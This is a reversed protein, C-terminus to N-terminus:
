PERAGRRTSGHTERNGRPRKSGLTRARALVAGDRTLGERQTTAGCVMARQCLRSAASPPRLGSRRDMPDFMGLRRPERHYVRAVRADACRPRRTPKSAPVDRCPHKAVNDCAAWPSSTAAPGCTAAVRRPAVGIRRAAIQGRPEFSAPSTRQSACVFAPSILGPKFHSRCIEDAMSRDRCDRACVPYLHLASRAPALSHPLPAATCHNM